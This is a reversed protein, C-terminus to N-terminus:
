GRNRAPDSGAPTGVGHCPGAQDQQDDPPGGMARLMSLGGTRFFRVVLVGALLLFVVNLWSTYNWSVGTVGVRAAARDPVLGLGGFVIEVLYGAVVMATYFAAFIVVTMRTGYYKRYIILIPVILLDAFIFATVGGFSIGAKWLVAALPVNGVSCVFSLIAVVPGILPGWLKAALPHGALFFGRWFTDPVWAAICGAILLGAAIDRIVAAWEMVFVHSVSTLGDGSLLRRYLPGGAGISMDMAAHGEMSGSLGRDAQERARRLLPPRVVRRFILAVVAIMIPAGTFEAATFQWGMLLAIVIGLEAVLNTSAIEFAMAATFSAGKRFLSRALAVAAYSCSSSAAGLGAAVALTRPRDDGLLRTIAARSVLAQVVASLAFGLILAWTIQWTMSGSIALAHVVAHM